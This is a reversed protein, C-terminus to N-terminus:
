RREHALPAAAWRAPTLDPERFNRIEGRAGGILLMTSMVLFGSLLMTIQVGVQDTLWGAPLLVLPQIGWTMMMVSMIRGRYEDPTAMMILTQNVVRTLAHMVGVLSLAILSLALWHSVAFLMLGGGFAAGSGLLVLGKQRHNSLAAALFSGVVSGLGVAAMLTGLGTPGVDLVDRAFVPMLNMYMMGLLIPVAAVCLLTMLAPSGKIFQLGDVLSDWPSGPARWPRESRVPNVRLTWSMAWVFLGAQALYCATIGFFGVLIGALAPGLVRSINFSISNLAVANALHREGALQPALSRRAPQNFAHATGELVSAVVLHWPQILGSWVLWALTCTTVMATFQTVVMIRQRDWRDAFVGAPLPLLLSPIGWAVAVLGLFTASDTLIYALWGQAIEQLWIAIQTAFTGTWLYRFDRVALSAFTSSFYRQASEGTRLSARRAASLISM